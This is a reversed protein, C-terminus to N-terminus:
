VMEEIPKNVLVDWARSTEQSVEGDRMLDEFTQLCLARADATSAVWRAVAHDRRRNDSPSGSHAMGDMAADFRAQQDRTALVFWRGATIECRDAREEHEQSTEYQRWHDRRVYALRDHYEDLTM